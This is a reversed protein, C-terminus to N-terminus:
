IFAYFVGARGTSPDYKKLGPRVICTKKISRSASTYKRTCIKTKIGCESHNEAVCRQMEYPFHLKKKTTTVREIRVKNCKWVTIGISILAKVLLYSPEESNYGNDTMNSYLIGNLLELSLYSYPVANCFIPHSIVIMSHITLDCIKQLVLNFLIYNKM